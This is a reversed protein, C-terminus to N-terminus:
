YDKEQFESEMNSPQNQIEEMQCHVRKRSSAEQCFTKALYNLTMEIDETTVEKGSVIENLFLYDDDNLGKPFYTHIKGEYQCDKVFQKANVAELMTRGLWTSGILVCQWWLYELATVKSRKKDHRVHFSQRNMPLAECTGVLVLSDYDILRLEVTGDSSNEEKVMINATYDWGPRLDCHVIYQQALPLLIRKVLSRFANWLADSKKSFSCPELNQFGDKRLDRMITVVSSTSTSWVCLLVESLESCELRRFTTTTGSPHVLTRHVSCSTVKICVHYSENDDKESPPPTWIWLTTGTFKSLKKFFAATLVTEFLEGQSACCINASGEQITTTPFRSTDFVPSAM